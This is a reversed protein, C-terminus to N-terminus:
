DPGIDVTLTKFGKQAEEWGYGSQNSLVMTKGITYDCNEHTHGHIWLDPQDKQIMEELDTVFAGGLNSGQFVSQSQPSPAYHTVVVTPGEFPTSLKSEIWDREQQFLELVKSVTIGEVQRFDNIKDQCEEMVRPNEGDFDSWLTAGVFRVGNVVKDEGNLFHVHPLADLTNRFVSETRELSKGYYEHNGLVYIVPVSSLSLWEALMRPQGVIDGALVLLDCSFLGRFMHTAKRPSFKPFWEYTELHLDSAINIKM